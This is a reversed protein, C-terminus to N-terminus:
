FSQRPISAGAGRAPTGSEFRSMPLRTPEADGENVTKINEAEASNRSPSFAVSSGRAYTGKNPTVSGALLPLVEIGANGLTCRTDGDVGVGAFGFENML